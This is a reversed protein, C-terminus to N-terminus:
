QDTIMKPNSMAVEEVYKVYDEECLSRPFYGCASEILDNLLDWKYVPVKKGSEARTGLRYWKEITTGNRVNSSSSNESNSKNKVQLLRAGDSTCFDVSRLTNGKCWIWSYDSIVSDIYEELLAGQVNEASMFLNHYSEQISAEEDSIQTVMKVITKVAPDSCSGKPKAIKTRVPSDNANIYDRVWRDIYDQFTSVRALNIDPFLEKNRIAIDFLRCLSEPGQQSYSTVFYDRLQEDTKTFKSIHTSPM